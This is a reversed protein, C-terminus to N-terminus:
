QGPIRGTSLLTNSSGITATTSDPGRSDVVSDIIKLTRYSATVHFQEHPNRLLDAFVSFTKSRDGLTMSQGNAYSNDRVAYSMGWHNHSKEPSKLYATWTHFLFSTSTLTDAKRDMNENDELSYNGGM